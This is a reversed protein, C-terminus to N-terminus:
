KKKSIFQGNKGRAPKKKKRSEALIQKVEDEQCDLKRALEAILYKEMFRLFPNKPFLILLSAMFSVSETLTIVVGVLGSTVDTTFGTEAEIVKDICLFVLLAFGYVLIKEVTLRMLESRTFNKRKVSVAIGCVLDIVTAILVIYVILMGASFADAVFLAIGVLWAWPYGLLDIFKEWVRSLYAFMHM